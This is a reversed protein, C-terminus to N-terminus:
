RVDLWCVVAFDVRVRGVVWVMGGWSKSREREVRQNVVSGGRRGGEM